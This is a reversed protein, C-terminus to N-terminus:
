GQAQQWAIGVGARDPHHRSVADGNGLAMNSSMRAMAQAAMSACGPLSLGALLLAAASRM